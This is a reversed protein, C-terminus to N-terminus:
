VVLVFYDVINCGLVLGVSSEPIELIGVIGSKTGVKTPDGDLADLVGEIMGGLQGTDWHAGKQFLV